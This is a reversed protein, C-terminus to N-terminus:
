FLQSLSLHTGSIYCLLNSVLLFHFVTSVTLKRDSSIQPLKEKISSESSSHMSASDNVSAASVSRRLGVVPLGELMQVCDTNSNKLGKVSVESADFFEDDDEESSHHEQKGVKGGDPSDSATVKKRCRTKDVSSESGTAMTGSHFTVTREVSQRVEDEFGHMQNALTEINEQLQLRLSHEHQLSRSWRKETKKAQLM